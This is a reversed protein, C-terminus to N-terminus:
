GRSIFCVYLGKLPYRGPFEKSYNAEPRPYLDLKLATSESFYDCATTGAGPECGGRGDGGAMLLNFYRGPNWPKMIDLNVLIV